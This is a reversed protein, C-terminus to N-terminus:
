LVFLKLALERILVLHLFWLFLLDFDDNCFMTFLIYITELFITFANFQLYLIEPMDFTPAGRKPRVMAPTPAIAPESRRVRPSLRIRFNDCIFQSLFYIDM